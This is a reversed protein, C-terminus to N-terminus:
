DDSFHTQARSPDVATSGYRDGAQISLVHRTIAQGQPPVRHLYRSLIPYPAARIASWGSENGEGRNKTKLRRKETGQLCRNTNVM